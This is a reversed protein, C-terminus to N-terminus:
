NLSTDAKQFAINLPTLVCTMLLVFTMFLDWWGKYKNNPYILYEKMYPGVKLSEENEKAARV